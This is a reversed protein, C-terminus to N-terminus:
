MNWHGSNTDVVEDTENEIKTMVINNKFELYFYAGAILRIAWYLVYPLELKEVDANESGSKFSAITALSAIMGALGGIFL